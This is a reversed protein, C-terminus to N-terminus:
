VDIEGADSLMKLARYVTALGIKEGSQRISAHIVQASRFSGTQGLAALVARRQRTHRPAGGFTVPEPTEERGVPESHWRTMQTGRCQGPDLGARQHSGGAGQM